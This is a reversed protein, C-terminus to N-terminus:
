REYSSLRGHESHFARLDEAKKVLDSWGDSQRAKAEFAAVVTKCKQLESKLLENQAKLGAIQDALNSPTLESKPTPTPPM